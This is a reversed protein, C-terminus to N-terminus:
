SAIHSRGLLQPALRPVALWFSPERPCSRGGRGLVAGRVWNRESGVGGGGAAAPYATQPSQAPGEASGAGQRVDQTGRTNGGHGILAFSEINRFSSSRM